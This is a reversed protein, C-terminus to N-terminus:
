RTAAEFRLFFQGPRDAAPADYYACRLDLRGADGLRVGKIITDFQEGGILQHSMTVYLRSLMHQRLMTGLMLPGALLYFRKFGLGGLAQLLPRGEVWRGDGAVIVQYGRRELDVVRKADAARVTAIFVRQGHQAVSEPIVFDLSASAVVIAPQAALGQAVRWKALDLTESRIGVQLIDDLRHEAIARLYGAHTILCDAQAQLELFLRFDHASTLESPVHSLGQKADDIAIRGDLSSVFNAYVFPDDPSGLEHVREALYCGRLPVACSPAPYLRLISDDMVYGM